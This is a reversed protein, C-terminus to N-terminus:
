GGRAQFREGQVEINGEGAADQGVDGQDAVGHGGLEPDGEGGGADEGGSDVWQVSRQPPGAVGSQASPEDCSSDGVVAM